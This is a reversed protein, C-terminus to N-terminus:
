LTVGTKAAVWDKAEAVDAPATVADKVYVVEFISGKFIGSAGGTAAGVTIAAQGASLACAGTVPTANNLQVSLNVGDYLATVVYPTGLTVADGTVTVISSGNGGSLVIANGASIGLSLGTNGTRDTWLTQATGALKTTFGICVMAATSAGGGSATVLFDDLGYSLYYPFKAPDGDYDSATNVRQYTTATSGLELQPHWFYFSVSGLIRTEPYIYFVTTPAANNIVVTCEYYGNGYPEITGVGAGINVVTQATLNFRAGNPGNTLNIDDANGAKLYARCTNYGAPVSVGQYIYGTVVNTVTQAVADSGGTPGTAQALSVGDTNWSTGETSVFLNVRASLLPRATSTSQSAHHGPIERVSINTIVLQGASSTQNRIKLNANAGGSITFSYIGTKITSDTYSSGNYNLNLGSDTTNVSVTVDVRITPKGTTNVIRYFYGNAYGVTKKTAAGTSIVWDDGDVTWGTAGNSFDGNTVLEPGLQPTGNKTDLVLGIPQGVATCPTTGASDQYLNALTTFDWLGGAEGAAFLTTPSWGKLAQWAALAPLGLGLGLM